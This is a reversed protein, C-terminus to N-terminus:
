LSFIGEAVLWPLLIYLTIDRILYYAVFGVVVRWGYAKVLGKMGSTRLVTAAEKVRARAGIQWMAVSWFAFAMLGAAVMFPRAIGFGDYLMGAMPPGIVRALSGASQYVGMAAGQREPLAGKSALSSLSPSTIGNGLALLGIGAFLLPVGAAQAMLVLAIAMAITGFLILRPEGFQKSLRGILGGQVVVMILGMFALLWGTEQADFGHRAQMFLALTVEMQTLAVTAVFLLLVAMRTRSDGMTERVAALDFRKVRTAERFERTRPPEPLEFYAFIINGLALVAAAFMPVGFGFRSLLGGIVPGFIFGLGFAAGIIGMGKARDEESTIDAIYATATSINAGCIGALTRGIFLWLLSPALGLMIMSLGIGAMSGLLVPRRGIRDSLRGWVPAFFFQMLSYSTMLWGLTTASAGYAKAYYPLIPIVIGFGVLDIFVVLFLILLPSRKVRPAM